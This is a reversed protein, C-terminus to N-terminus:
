TPQPQKRFRRRLWWVLLSLMVVIPAGILLVIQIEERTRYAQMRQELLASKPTRFRMAAHYYAFPDGEGTLWALNGWDFMIDGVIPDPPAVFKLREKLQYAIANQAEALTMPKGSANRLTQAPKEPSAGVGFSLGLVSNGSLWDPTHQLQLKAELIKAHLWETEQHDKPDRQLGIRIWHLADENKGALELATGLNFATKPQGPQSAEASRLVAEAEAYRGAVIYAAGLDNAIQHTPNTKHKRELDAVVEQVLSKDQSSLLAELEAEYGNLCASASWALLLLHTGILLKKFTM